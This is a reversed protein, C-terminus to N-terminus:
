CTQSVRGVIYGGLKCCTLFLIVLYYNTKVLNNLYLVRRKSNSKRGIWRAEM